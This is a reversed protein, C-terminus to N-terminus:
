HYAADIPFGLEDRFFTQWTPFVKEYLALQKKHRLEIEKMQKSTLKDWDPAPEWRPWLLIDGCSFCVNISAVPVEGEYLVVAHRPFPCKSVSVDGQTRSVLEVAKKAQTETIPKKDVVHESWGEENYAHLQPGGRMPFQNFTVAVAHDWAHFPWVKGTRTVPAPKTRAAPPTSAPAADPDTTTGADTAPEPSSIVKTEAPATSSPDPPANAIPQSGGCAFVFALGLLRTKSIVSTLM